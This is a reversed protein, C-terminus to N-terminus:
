GLFSRLREVVLEPHEMPIFHSCDLQEDRASQMRSALKPDTASTSLDFKADTMLRGSRLILAPQAIEAVEKAIDSAPENWLPYITAEIEPPCALTFGEGDPVLGFECYDRLIDRDWVAFPPRDAFREFMEEASQWRARRRAVFGVDTPANNYQDSARIVPDVLLLSSFADPVLSAALAVAHGGLSHGVGIANKLGLASAVVATDEGFSRWHYPPSPKASRGHGRLDISLRHRDPFKELIRDWVRGHFGTAHTCLITPEDGPWEWAAIEIGNVPIKLLEPV